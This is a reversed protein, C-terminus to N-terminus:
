RHYKQYSYRMGSGECAKPIFIYINKFFINLLQLTSSSAAVYVMKKFFDKSKYYITCHLLKLVLGIIYIYKSKKFLLYYVNCWWIIELEIVYSWSYAIYAIIIVLGLVIIRRHLKERFMQISPRNQMYTMSIRSLCAREAVYSWMSCNQRRYESVELFKCRIM